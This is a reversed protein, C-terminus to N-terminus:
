RPLGYTLRIVLQGLDIHHTKPQEAEGVVSKILAPVDGIKVYEKVVKKGDKEYFEGQWIRRAEEQVASKAEAAGDDIQKDLDELNALWM